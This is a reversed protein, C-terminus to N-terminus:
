IQTSMSNILSNSFTQYNSAGHQMNRMFIPQIGNSIALQALLKMNECYQASTLKNNYANGDPGAVTDPVLSSNKSNTDNIVFDHISIAPHYKIVNEYFWALAWASTQSGKSYNTYDVTVVSNECQLRKFETASAAHRVTGWSDFEQAIVAGKPFLQTDPYELENVWWTVRGIGFGYKGGNVPGWSNSYIELKATGAGEYDCIIRRCISTTLIEHLKEVGDITVVVHVEMGEPLEIQNCVPFIFAELYGSNGQLNQEWFVGTKGTWPSYSAYAIYLCANTVTRQLWEKNMNENVYRYQDTQYGSGIKQWPFVTPDTVDVETGSFRAVYKGVECHKPNQAFIHQAYAKYGNTTLHLGVSTSTSDTLMTSLVGNTIEETLKPFVILKTADNPDAKFNVTHFHIGDASLVGGVWGFDSTLQALNVTSSLDADTDCHVAAFSSVTLSDSDASGSVSMTIDAKTWADPIYMSCWGFSAMIEPMLPKIPHSLMYKPKVTVTSSRLGVKGAGDVALVKGANEVGQDIDVKKEFEIELTGKVEASIVIPNMKSIRSTMVCFRFYGATAPIDIPTAKTDRLVNFHSVYSGSPTYFFAKATPDITGKYSINLTKANTLTIPDSVSYSSGNIINGITAATTSITKGETFTIDAIAITQESTSGFAEEITSSLPDIQDVIDGLDTDLKARSISGDAVAIVEPHANIYSGVASEVATGDLADHWSAGGQGDTMLVQGNTGDTAPKTLKTALADGAAKADAAEGQQTLTDDIEVSSGGSGQVTKWTRHGNGDTTLVQGNKGETAPENIKTGLTTNIGNVTSSLGSVSTQLASVDSEIQTTDPMNTEIQNVKTQLQGIASENAAIQTDQEITTQAQIVDGNAVDHIQYAM